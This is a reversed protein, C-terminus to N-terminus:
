GGGPLEQTVDVLPMTSMGNELPVCALLWPAALAVLVACLVLRTSLTRSTRM